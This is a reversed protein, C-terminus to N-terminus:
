SHTVQGSGGNGPAGGNGPRGGKTISTATVTTGSTSGTVRITDGKALDGVSIKKSVSITTASSTTVTVTGTSSTVTVTDGDVAKITGITFSGAGFNGGPPAQASGSAEGGRRAGGGGFGGGFGGRASDGSDSIRSAAVATGSPTGIVVVHDGNRLDGVKGTVTETIATSGTTKVTMTTAASGNFSEAELTIKSGDIATITGATGRRGHQGAGTPTGGQGNPQGAASASATTTVSKKGGSMSIGVALGVAVIVAVMAAIAWSKWEAKKPEPVVPTDPPPSNVDTM